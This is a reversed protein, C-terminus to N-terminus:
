TTGNLALAILPVLMVLDLLVYPVLFRGIPRDFGRELLEAYNTMYPRLFMSQSLLAVWATTAWPWLDTNLNGAFFTTVSAIALILSTYREIKGFRKTIALLDSVTAVVDGRTSTPYLERLVSVASAAATLAWLVAALRVVM